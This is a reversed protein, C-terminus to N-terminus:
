RAVLEPTFVMLNDDAVCQNEPIESDSGRRNKDFAPLEECFTIRRKFLHLWFINARSCTLLSELLKHDNQHHYHLDYM